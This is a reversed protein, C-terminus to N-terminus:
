TRRAASLTLRALEQALRPLGEVKGLVVAVGVERAATEVAADVYATYLVVQQAPRELRIQRTAELGDVLPMQLDMVVVHPQTELTRRVAEAGDAAEAVIDFGDLTLMEVLVRRVHATDDAVLVRVGAGPSSGDV